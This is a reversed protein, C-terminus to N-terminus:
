TAGGFVRGVAAGSSVGAGFTTGFCPDVEEPSPGASATDAVVGPVLLAGGAVAGGALAGGVEGAVAGGVGTASARGADEM